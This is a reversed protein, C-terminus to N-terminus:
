RNGFSRTLLAEDNDESLSEIKTFLVDYTVNWDGESFIRVDANKKSPRIREDNLPKIHKLYNTLCAELDKPNKELFHSLCTDSACEMFLKIDFKKCLDQNLFLQSGYVFMVCVNTKEIKDLLAGHNPEHLATSECAESYVVVSYKKMRRDEVMKDVFSKLPAGIPGCVAIIIM